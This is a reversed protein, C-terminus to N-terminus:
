QRCIIDVKTHANKYDVLSYDYRETGHVAIFDDTINELPPRGGLEKACYPCGSGTKHNNPEQEFERYCRNCGITVKPKNGKYVTHTYDYLEGHVEKALKIFGATDHENFLATRDTGCKPCGQKSGVHNYPRQEFSGHEPCIITVPTRNNKYVVKSYEYRGAGHVEHAKEIFQKVTIRRSM